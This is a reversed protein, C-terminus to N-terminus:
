KCVLELDHNGTTLPFSLDAGEPKVASQQGDAVLRCGEAHAFRIFGDNDATLALRIGSPSSDFRQITATAAALWPRDPPTDTLTLFADGGPALHIYRQDNHDSFGTVGRSAALDPYGATIPLRFERLEGSNRILWGEGSRAVVTRNFDVVKKVYDSTFVPFPKQALAWSYVEELAKFSATKTMSFTHYYINLPKLRRPADTQRFTEIVRRYGYFPGTWHNTYINENQNPAFVQFNGAKEIGLPGVLAIGRNSETATTYGGNINAVGAKAAVALADSGPTCDGSWQFLTVRKGPPLLNQEIFRISGPIEDELNFTYGPIPLYQADYEKAAVETTQWYFPHSFSHSAAEVWPLNFIKRAEAQLPQSTQPSLGHDGLISTIVSFSTPITYKKLIRERLETAALRGGPWEARSEFGDADIHTLLLRAGNETTTDPAPQQQLRLALRFFEFPNLIWRSSQNGVAQTMVYPELAYGGWPTIAVFDAVQRGDASGITILPEGSTVKLPQFQASVPQPAQELTIGPAIHLLELRRQETRTPGYKLGPLEGAQVPSFGFRDLFAVPVGMDIQRRVWPVLESKTSPQDTNPWVLVGAYQGSLIESTLPQDLDHLEVQYGLYNLPMVALRHLNAYIPDTAESANYLGLIKRPLVEVAGVGLSRLDKDAVWPIYGLEMIREATKRALDRNGPKVYDISIVPLGIKRVEAFRSILWKRDPEAVVDYRGTVPDVKQFLSEAAVAFAADRVQDLVEFGRNFILRAEPHRQKLERITQVLGAELGPYLGKDKVLRYSDLTDLFFGRYGAEWLPEVVTNLFFNRWEPNALDVVKSKWAHNDAILWRHDIKNHWLRRPDAEGVSLYAFLQSNSSNYQSPAIGATDPDVVVIDFAKLENLPPKAAYYFAISFPASASASASHLVFVSVLIILFIIPRM